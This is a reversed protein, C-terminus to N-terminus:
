KSHTEWWPRNITDAVMDMVTKKQDPAINQGEEVGLKLRFSVTVPEHSERILQGVYKDARSIAKARSYKGREWSMVTEDQHTSIDSYVLQLEYHTKTQVFVYTRKM